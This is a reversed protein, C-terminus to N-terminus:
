SVCKGDWSIIAIGREKLEALTLFRGMDAGSRKLNKGVFVTRAMPLTDANLPLFKVEPTGYRSSIFRGPRYAGHGMGADRTAAGEQRVSRRSMRYKARKKAQRGGACGIEVLAPPSPERMRKNGPTSAGDAAETVAADTDPLFVQPKDLEESMEEYSDMSEKVLDGFPLDKLAVGQLL